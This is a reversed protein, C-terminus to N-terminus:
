MCKLSLMLSLVVNWLFEFTPYFLKWGKDLIQYLIKDKNFQVSSGVTFASVSRLDDSIEKIMEIIANLLNGGDVIIHLEKSFENTRIVEYICWIRRAPEAHDELVM